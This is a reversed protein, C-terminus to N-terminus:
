KYVADVAKVAQEHTYKDGYESELQEVLGEKSFSMTDLYNKAAKKAQEVWDINENKELLDVAAKADAKEYSDGYESSLQDILGQKSFPMTDLYNKASEYANKQATSLNETPDDSSDEEIDESEMDESEIDESDDEDTAEEEVAASTDENTASDDGCGAMTGILLMCLMVGVIILVKKKM